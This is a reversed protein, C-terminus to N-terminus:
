RARADGAVNGDADFALREGDCADAEVLAAEVTDEADVVEAGQASDEPVELGHRHGEPAISAVDAPLAHAGRGRDCRLLAHQCGDRVDLLGHQVAEQLLVAGDELFRLSERRLPRVVM